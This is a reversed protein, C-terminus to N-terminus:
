HSRREGQTRQIPGLDSGGAALRYLSELVARLERRLERETDISRDSRPPRLGLRPPQQLRDLRANLACRRAELDSRLEYLQPMPPERAHIAAEDQHAPALSANVWTL